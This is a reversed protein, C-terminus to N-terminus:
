RLLQKLPVVLSLLTVVFIVKLYDLASVNADERHVAALWLM